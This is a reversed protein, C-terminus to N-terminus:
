PQCLLVKSLLSAGFLASGRRLDGKKVINDINFLSQQFMSEFEKRLEREQELQNMKETLEEGVGKRQVELCENLRKVEEDKEKLQEM